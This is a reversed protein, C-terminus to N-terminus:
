FPKGLPFTLLWKANMAADRGPARVVGTDLGPGPGSESGSGSGLGSGEVVGCIIRLQSDQKNLYTKIQRPFLAAITKRVLKNDSVSRARIEKGQLLCSQKDFSSNSVYDFCFVRREALLIAMKRKPNRYVRGQLLGKCYTTLMGIQNAIVENRRGIRDNM